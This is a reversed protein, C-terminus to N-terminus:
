LSKVFYANSTGGPKFNMANKQQLEYKAFELKIKADVYEKLIDYSKKIHEDQIQKKFIYENKSQIAHVDDGFNEVSRECQKLEYESARSM